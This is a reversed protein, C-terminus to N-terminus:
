AIAGRRARRRELVTQYSLLKAKPAPRAAALAESLTLEGSAAGGEAFAPVQPLSRLRERTVASPQRPM